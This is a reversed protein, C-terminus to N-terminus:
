QLHHIQKKGRVQIIQCSVLPMIAKIITKFRNNEGAIIILDIQESEVIGTLEEQLNREAIHVSIDLGAECASRIMEQSTERVFSMDPTMARQADICLVVIRSTVREALSMAHNLVKLDNSEMDLPVLISIKRTGM